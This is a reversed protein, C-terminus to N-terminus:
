SSFDFELYGKRFRQMIKGNAYYPGTVPSGYTEMGREWGGERLYEALLPGEMVVPRTALTPGLPALVPLSLVLAWAGGGYTQVAATEQEAPGGSGGASSGHRVLFVPGDASLAPRGAYVSSRWADRFSRAASGEAPGLLAVAAASLEGVSGPLEVAPPAEQRFVVSDDSRRVFLGREFRQASGGEYPYSECLPPGYGSVGNAGGYGAAGKGYADLIPGRVTFARFSGEPLAVLVLGPLRWSDVPAATNRFNQVLASLMPADGGSPLGPAWRHVRDGGIVGDLPEGRAVAEVYAAAVASSIAARDGSGYRGMLSGDLVGVGPPASPVPNADPVFSPRREPAADVGVATGGAAGGPVASAEAGTSGPAGIATGGVGASSPAGACSSCLLAVTCLAGSAGIRIVRRIM